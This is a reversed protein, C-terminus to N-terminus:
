LCRCSKKPLAKRIICINYPELHNAMIPFHSIYTKPLLINNTFTTMPAIGCVTETLALNRIICINYPELHNAMIPFHSIYTKPLLINNTFTTMPAIGCVTETLALHLGIYINKSTLHQKHIYDNTCHWVCDGNTCPALRYIYIPECRASFLTATSHSFINIIFCKAIHENKLIKSGHYFSPMPM